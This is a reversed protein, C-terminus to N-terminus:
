QAEGQVVRKQREVDFAIGDAACLNDCLLKSREKRVKVLQCRFRQALVDGSSRLPSQGKVGGFPRLGKPIGVNPCRIETTERRAPLIGAAFRLNPPFNYSISFGDKWSFIM